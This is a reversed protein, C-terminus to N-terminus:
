AETPGAAAVSLLVTGLGLALVVAFVYEAM